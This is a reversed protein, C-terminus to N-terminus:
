KLKTEIYLAAGVSSGADGPNKPVYSHKFTSSLLRKAPV